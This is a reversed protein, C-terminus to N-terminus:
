ERKPFEIVKGEKKVGNMEDNFEDEMRTEMQSEAQKSIHNEELWLNLEEHIYLGEVVDDTNAMREMFNSYEKYQLETYLKKM